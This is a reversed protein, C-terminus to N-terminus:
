VPIIIELSCGKGPASELHLQGSYFEVRSRINKLGIGTPKKSPDFGVGNDKILLIVSGADSKLEVAAKSARAHKIINNLQEQVIRYLMLEMRADLKNAAEKQFSLAVHIQRTLNVEEVLGQLAENLGM